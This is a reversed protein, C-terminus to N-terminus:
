LGEEDRSGIGALRAVFAEIHRDVLADPVPAVRWSGPGDALVFRPTGDRAKKDSSMAARLDRAEFDGTARPIGLLDLLRHQRGAFATSAGIAEVALLSAFRIGEAVAVGHPLTGYGAVKELAHGFTHGYNLCERLDAEREDATVIRAKFGVARRVADAVTDPERQVLRVASTEMWGLFEESELVAVKVVEALGSQWESEPLTGLTDTDALVVRPQKFAGALNKGARLDVGTKGGVSSDVQALLTTPLQVFDVGRLFSAAVFGALDGVVGGGLAVVLDTRDLGAEALAELLRGAAEWCKSAEGAPVTVDVVAFGASELSERVVHAFRGAVNTDTVVAARHARTVARIREGASALVGSGIYVNYPEAALPVRVQVPTSM